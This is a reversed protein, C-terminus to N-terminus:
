KLDSFNITVFERVAKGLDTDNPYKEIFMKIVAMNLAEYKLRQVERDISKIESGEMINMKNKKSKLQKKM